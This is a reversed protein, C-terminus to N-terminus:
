PAAVVRILVYLPTQGALLPRGDGDIMKWEAYYAGPREPAALEITARCTGGPPTDPLPSRPVSRLSTPDDGADPRELYRDQWPVTGANRLVWEKIFTEGPRVDAGDPYNESVFASADGPVATPPSPLEQL